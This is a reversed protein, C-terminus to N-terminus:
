APLYVARYTESFKETAQLPIFVEEMSIKVITSGVRPSIGGFDIYQYRERLSKFYENKLEQITSEPTLSIPVNKLKVEEILLYTQLIKQITQIAIQLEQSPPISADHEGANRFLDRYHYLQSVNATDLPPDAYKDMLTILQNFDPQKLQPQDETTIKGRCINRLYFKLAWELAGITETASKRLDTEYKPMNKDEVARMAEQYFTCGQNFRDIVKPLTIKSMIKREGKAIM